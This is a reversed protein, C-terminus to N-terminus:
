NLDNKLKNLKFISLPSHGMNKIKIKTSNLKDLFPQGLADVTQANVIYEGGELEVPTTGGVIAPIGGEEHSPGVLFGGANKQHPRQVGKVKKM